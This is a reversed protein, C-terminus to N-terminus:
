DATAPFNAVAAEASAPEAPPAPERDTVAAHEEARRATEDQQFTLKALACRALEACREFEADACQIIRRQAAATKLNVDAALEKLYEPKLVIVSLGKLFESHETFADFVYRLPGGHLYVRTFTVGNTDLVDEYSCNALDIQFGCEEFFECEAQTHPPVIKGDAGVHDLIGGPSRKVCTGDLKARNLLKGLANGLTDSVSTQKAVMNLKEMVGRQKAENALFLRCTTNVTDGDFISRLARREEITITPNTALWKELLGIVQSAACTKLQFKLSTFDPSNRNTLRLFSREKHLHSKEQLHLVCVRSLIPGIDGVHQRMIAQPHSSAIQVTRLKHDAKPGHPPRYDLKYDAFKLWEAKQVSAPIIAKVCCQGNALVAKVTGKGGVEPYCKIVRFIDGLPTPETTAM